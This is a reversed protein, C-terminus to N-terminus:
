QPGEQSQRAFTQAAIDDAMFEAVVEGTSVAIGPTSELGFHVAAGGLAHGFWMALAAFADRPDDGECGRLWRELGPMLAEVTRLKLAEHDTMTM